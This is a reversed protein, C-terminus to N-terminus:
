PPSAGVKTEFWRTAGVLVVSTKDAELSIGLASPGGEVLFGGDKREGREKLAGRLRSAAGQVDLGGLDLAGRRVALRAGGHLNATMSEIMPDPVVALVSRAIASTGATRAYLNLFPRADHAGISLSLSLSPPNLHITATALKVKGWWEAFAPDSLTVEAGGLDLSPALFNAKLPITARVGSSVRAGWVIMVLQSEISTEASAGYISGSGHGKMTARGREIRFPSDKPLADDIAHLDFVDLRATEWSYEFGRGVTEPEALDVQNARASTALAKCTAAPSKAKPETFSLESLAVDVKSWATENADDAEGTTLEIRATGALEHDDFSVRAPELDIRSATGSKVVGRVVAIDSQFTGVGGGLEVSGKRVFHRIFRIDGTKGRLLSHMSLYHLISAGKVNNLDVTEIAADIRGTVETAIADEGTALLDSRIDATAPALTFIGSGLTFGGKADLLGSVRYADIWVERVARADIGQLDVTWPKANPDRTDPPVGLLPVSDFGPIAPMRQARDPNSAAPDLRFRLRFTVGTVTVKAVQFRRHVLAWLSLDVDATDIHLQWEVTEERGRLDFEGLHVRGPWFTRAHEYELLLREPHGSVLKAIAGTSLAINAGVEYLLVILLLSFAAWRAIRLRWSRTRDPRAPRLGFTLAM